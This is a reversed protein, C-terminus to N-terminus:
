QMISMGSLTVSVQTQIRMTWWIAVLSRCIAAAGNKYDAYARALGEELGAKAQWGMANLRDSNMWKRPAGDPKGADFIISGSYEVTTAIRQALEAITVDSGYGVNIHSLQPQVQADYVPSSLKM